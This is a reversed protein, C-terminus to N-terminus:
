RLLLVEAGQGPHLIPNDSPQFELADLGAPHVVTELDGKIDFFDVGGANQAYLGDPMRAGCIVGALHATQELGSAGPIFCLGTEFLRVRSQQRNLNHRLAQVLGPLLRTRMVSMDSSIPNSLPM